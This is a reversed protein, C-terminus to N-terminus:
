TVGEHCLAHAKVTAESLTLTRGIEADSLGADPPLGLADPGCEHSTEYSANRYSM